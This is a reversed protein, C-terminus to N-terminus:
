LTLLLWEVGRQGTHLTAALVRDDDDGRGALEKAHASDGLRGLDLRERLDIEVPICEVVAVGIDSGGEGQGKPRLALEEDGALGPDQVISDIAGPESDEIGRSSRTGLRDILVGVEE